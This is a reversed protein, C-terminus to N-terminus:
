QRSATGRGTAKTPKATAPGEAAATEPEPAPPDFLTAITAQREAAEQEIEARAAEVRGLLEPDAKAAAVHAEIAAMVEDQLTHVRLGAVLSIQAHLEPKFRFALTKVGNKGNGAGNDPVSM